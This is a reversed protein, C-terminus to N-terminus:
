KSSQIQDSNEPPNGFNVTKDPTSDRRTGTSLRLISPMKMDVRSGRKERSGHGASDRWARPKGGPLTVDSSAQSDNGMLRSEPGTSEKSPFPKLGSLTVDSSAQFGDIQHGLFTSFSSFSEFPRYAVYQEPDKKSSVQSAPASKSLLSEALSTRTSTRTKGDAGNSTTPKSSPPGASARIIQPEVYLVTTFSSGTQSFSDVSNSSDIAQKLLEAYEGEVAPHKVAYILISHAGNKPNETNQNPFMKQKVRLSKQPIPGKIAPAELEEKKRQGKEECFGAYCPRGDKLIAKSHPVCDGPNQPDSANFCCLQCASINTAHCFCPKLPLGEQLGKIECFGKCDGHYCQGGDLCPTGDPVTEPTRCKFGTGTCYSKKKCDVGGNDFCM